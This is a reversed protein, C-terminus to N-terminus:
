SSLTRDGQSLSAEPGHARREDGAAALPDPPSQGNRQPGRAIGHQHMMAALRVLRALDSVDDLLRAPPRAGHLSVEGLPCRERPQDPPRARREPGQRYQDVAGGVEIVVTKFRQVVFAPIPMELGIEVGGTMRACPKVACARASDSSASGDIM